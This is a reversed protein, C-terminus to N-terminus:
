DVFSDPYKKRIQDADELTTELHRRLAYCAREADGDAIADVIKEHEQLVRRMMGEEPMGLQRLRDIHGSRSQILRWLDEQGAALYFESHFEHDAQVFAKQDNAELLGEQLVLSARLRAVVSKEPALCLERVLELEISKRLFHSKRAQSLRIKSVQTAAQPFVEVLDEAQLRMLADRIPTQSVGHQQALESRSLGMGPYLEMSLIRQRLTEYLLQTAPRMRNLANLQHMNTHNYHNLLAVSASYRM